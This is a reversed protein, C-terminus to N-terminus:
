DGYRQKWVDVTQGNVRKLWIKKQPINVEDLRINKIRTNSTSFYFGGSEDVGTRNLNVTQTYTSLNGNCDFYDFALLVSGRDYYSENNVRFHGNAMTCETSKVNFSVYLQVDNRYSVSVWEGWNQASVTSTILQFIFVNLLIIFPKM